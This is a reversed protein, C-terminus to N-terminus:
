NFFNGPLNNPASFGNPVGDWNIERRGSGFSGVVNLNFMGLSSRFSEVTSQIAAVNAGSASLVIPVAQAGAAACFLAASFMMRSIKM